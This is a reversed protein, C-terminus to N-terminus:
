GLDRKKRRLDFSYVNTKEKVLITLDFKIFSLIGKKSNFTCHLNEYM